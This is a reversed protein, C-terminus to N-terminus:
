RRWNRWRAPFGEIGQTTLVDLWDLGKSGAPIQGSPLLIEYSIGLQELRDGLENAAAQGAFSVDKDAFIVVHKVCDPLQVDVLLTKNSTAWVPIRAIARAALATEIGEALGLVEQPAFLPIAAGNLPAAQLTTKKGNPVPAKLGEETIYTRHLSIVEGNAVLPAIMCPYTGLLQMKGKVKEYYPLGPHYRLLPSHNEVFLGRRVLYREVATGAIPRVDALIRRMVQRAKEPDIKAERSPLPQVKKEVPGAKLRRGLLELADVYSMSAAWALLNIGNPFPGCTNCVGGGSQDFDPFLRFGNSGGHVPCPVHDGRAAIAEALNPALEMLLDAWVGSASGRVYKILDKTTSGSAPVIM